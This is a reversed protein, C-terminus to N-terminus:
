GRLFRSFRALAANVSAADFSDSFLEPVPDLHHRGVATSHRWTGVVEGAAVLVPRVMGNLTPGITALRGPPCVRSRDAYSLYYEDFPGLALVTETPHAPAAAGVVTLLGADAETEADADVVREGADARAARALGLPVGAWWRFDELTAPGHGALYRVLLEALPYAPSGADAIWEDPAVLYQERTPAGERAIVPGFVVTERLALASLLHNGRSATVDGGAATVVDAFEARSLRNGGALVPRVAREARFVADADIGLRRHMGAAQRHQRERTLALIWALDEAAVIHLTGRQTWSRVLEGRAFADDVDALRPQGASRIGLAWRGAWFEQAQTAALRRAAAVPDAAPRDLRHAALRAAHLPALDM